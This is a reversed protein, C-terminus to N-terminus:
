VSVTYVSQYFTGLVLPKKIRFGRYCTRCSFYDITIRCYEFVTMLPLLVLMTKVFSLIARYLLNNVINFIEQIFRIYLLYLCHQKGRVITLNMHQHM